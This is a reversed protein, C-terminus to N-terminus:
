NDCRHEDDEEFVSDLAGQLEEFEEESLMIAYCHKGLYWHRTFRLGLLGAINLEKFYEM